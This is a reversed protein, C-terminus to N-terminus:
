QLRGSFFVDIFWLLCWCVMQEMWKGMSFCLSGEESTAPNPWWTSRARGFNRPGCIPDSDYDRRSQRGPHPSKQRHFFCPLIAPNGEPWSLTQSSSCPRNIFRTSQGINSIPPDKWDKWNAFQLRKGSPLKNIMGLIAPKSQPETM